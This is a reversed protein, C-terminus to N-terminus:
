GTWSKSEFCWRDRDEAVWNWDGLLITLVEERPAINEKLIKYSRLRAARDAQLGLGIAMYAVIIDLAGALGRLKLKGLRGYELETWSSDNTAAFKSLFGQQVVM